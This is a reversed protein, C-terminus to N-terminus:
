IMCEFRARAAFSNRDARSAFTCGRVTNREVRASRFQRPTREFMSRLQKKKAACERKSNSALASAAHSCPESQM